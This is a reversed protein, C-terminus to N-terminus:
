GDLNGAINIEVNTYVTSCQPMTGYVFYRFLTDMAITAQLQSRQSVIVHIVGRDVLEHVAPLAISDFCLIKIRRGLEEIARCVGVVSTSNIFVSEIEPHAALLEKTRTYGIFEDNLTVSYTPKYIFTVGAVMLMSAILVLSILKVWSRIHIFLKKM